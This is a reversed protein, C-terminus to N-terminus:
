WNQYAGDLAHNTPDDPEQTETPCPKAAGNVNVTTGGPLKKYFDDPLQAGPALNINVIVPPTPPANDPLLTLITGVGAGVAAAGIVPGSTAASLGAVIAAGVAVEPLAAVTAVVAVAIVAVAAVGVLVEGLTNWWSTGLLDAWVLPNGAVFNYVNVDGDQGIPDRTIYRAQRPDYYRLSTLVLGTENDTYYGFQAGFGFPDTVPSSSSGLGFADYVSSSIVGGSSNTREAVNGFPDFLYFISGSSTHRSLLFSPGFTNYATVAGSSSLEIIPQTGDYVFYTRTAGLQRWARLGDYRYGAAFTSGYSTLRHEVDYTATDSTGPFSKEDGSADYTLATNQDDADFTEPTGRVLDPNNAVDFGFKNDYGGARTSKEETIQGLGDLTYATTGQLPGNPSTVPVTLPETLSDRIVGTSGGFDSLVTAGAMNVLSRISNRADLGYVYSAGNALKVEDIYSNPYYGINTTESYPNTLSELRGEADYKYTSTGAPSTLSHRSGDPNYSCSLTETRLGTYTTSSTTSRDGDDYTKAFTGTGDTVSTQRDYADYVFQAGLAPQSPYSVNSLKGDGDKYAYDTEIGRADVRKVIREDADYARSETDGKPSRIRTMNGAVDYTYTTTSTKGDQITSIRYSGDHTFFEPQFGSSKGLLEGENGYTYQYRRTLSGSESYSELAALPGGAYQYIWEDVAQGTGNEGTKPYQVATKDGAINYSALYVNNRADDFSTLKGLGNYRYHTTDGANDVIAIPEDVAEKQSYSGDTTYAFKATDSMVTGNGPITVSTMNGFTDYVFSTTVTTTSGTTGPAPATVSKLNGSPEYYGYKTPSKIGTQCQMLEGLAFAAYSYTYTTVTGKPSTMSKMNGFQDWTYRTTLGAADLVASPKFPDNPDNYTLTLQPRGNVDAQYTLDENNDYGVIRGGSVQNDSGTVVVRTYSSPYQSNGYQDTSLYSHTNGNADTISSVADNEPGYEITNSTTGVGTPSPVTMSTLFPVEETGELDSVESYGYQYRDVPVAAAGNQVISVRDLQQYAVGYAPPVNTLPYTGCHTIVSRGLNDTVFTINGTGDYARHITLLAKGSTSDVISSILPIPAGFVSGDPQPSGYNFRISHNNRDTIQQLVYAGTGPQLATTTWVTRDSFTIKYYGTPSSSSYEWFVIMQAGAEVKCAVSQSKSTPATAATFSLQSGNPFYVYKPNGAGTGGSSPDFVGVNYPQSWGAGFDAYQYALNPSRLSSYVRRWVVSPGNPNYITLDPKPSYQEEGTALNVPDGDSPGDCDCNGNTDLPDNSPPTPAPSTPRDGCEITGGSWNFASIHHMAALQLLTSMWRTTTAGASAVDFGMSRGSSRDLAATVARGAASDPRLMSAYLWPDLAHWQKWTLRIKGGPWPGCDSCLYSVGEKDTDTVCIFHDHEVFAITPKPLAKLGADDAAIPKVELGLRRGADVIDQLTSGEGTVHIKSLVFSKASPLGLSRLCVAVAAAACDPDLHSPEPIGMEMRANQRAAISEARRLWFTCNRRSYGQANKASLLKSFASAAAMFTCHDFMTVAQDYRALGALDPAVGRLRLVAAFHYAATAVDQDGALAAEGLWIHLQATDDSKEGGRHLQSKWVLIQARLPEKLFQGISNLLSVPCSSKGSLTPVLTGRRARSRPSPNDAPVSQRSNSPTNTVILAVRVTHALTGSTASVTLNYTGLAANGTSIYLNSGATTAVPPYFSATAGAPLGAVALDINGNFGGSEPLAVVAADTAQPAISIPNPSVTLGFDIDQATVQNSGAGTGNVDFACVEYTYTIGATVGSDTFSTRNTTAVVTFSGSDHVERFVYYGTALPVAQWQVLISGAQPMAVIQAPAVLAAVGPTASAEASQPGEGIDNVTSVKYYYTQQNNVNEDTFSTVTQGTAYPESGEAGAVLSRYVNYSTSGTVQQWTLTVQNSKASAYVGSPAPPLGKAGPTAYAENGAPATGGANYAAVVYYYTTGGTVARDTYTTATGAVSAYPTEEGPNTARMVYYGTAGAVPEWSLGVAGTGAIASLGAVRALQNGSVQASVETSLAGLGTTNLTGVRYYYAAGQDVDSDTYSSLSPSNAVDYPASGEGGPSTSRFILYALASPASSPTWNLRVFNTGGNSYAYAQIPDPAPLTAGAPTVDVENSQGSRGNANLAIVYYYYTKGAALGTDSYTTDTIGSKYLNEEGSVSGRYLSYSSAGPLAKWTLTASSKLSTATLVPTSQFSLAATVKLEGSLAGEGFDVAAIRFYYTGAALPSLQASNYSSVVYTPVAPEGGSKSAQYIDYAQAGNVPNWTLDITSPLTVSGALGTPAELVPAGPQGSVANSDAGEGNANKAAVIFNYNTGSMLGIAVYSTANLGIVLAYYSGSQSPNQYYVDYGTAGSVASWTLTVTKAGSVAKLEPAALLPAGMTASAENSQASEANASVATVRYYYRTGYVVSKDEYRVYGGTTGVSAYPVSGEAGSKTSRYVNYYDADAVPNWGVAIDLDSADPYAVVNQPAQGSPVGPTAHAEPSPGSEGYKSVATVYYYYTESNTVGKDLYSTGAIRGVYFTESGQETARYLNYSTAGV